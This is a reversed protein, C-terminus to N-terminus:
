HGGPSSEILGKIEEGIEDIRGILEVLVRSLSRDRTEESWLGLAQVADELAGLAQARRDPRRPM